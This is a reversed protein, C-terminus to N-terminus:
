LMISNTHQRGDPCDLAALITGMSLSIKASCPVGSVNLDSLPGSYALVTKTFKTHYASGLMCELM